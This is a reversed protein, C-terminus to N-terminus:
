FVIQIILLKTSALSAITSIGTVSQSWAGNKTHHNKLVMGLKKTSLFLFKRGGDQIKAAMKSKRVRLQSRGRYIHESNKQISTHDEFHMMIHRLYWLLVVNFCFWWLRIPKCGTCSKITFFTTNKSIKLIIIKKYM